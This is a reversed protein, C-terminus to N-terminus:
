CFILILSTLTDQETDTSTESFILIYEMNAPEGTGETIHLIDWLRKLFLWNVIRSEKRGTHKGTWDQIRSTM